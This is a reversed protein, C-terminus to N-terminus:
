TPRAQRGPIGSVDPRFAQAVGKRSLLVFSCPGWPARRAINTAGAQNVRPNGGIPFPEYIFFSIRDKARRPRIAPLARAPRTRDVLLGGPVGSVMLAPVVDPDISTLTTLSLGGLSTIAAQFMWSTITGSEPAVPVSVNWSGAM